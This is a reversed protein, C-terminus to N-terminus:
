RSLFSTRETFLRELHGQRYALYSSLILFTKKPAITDSM